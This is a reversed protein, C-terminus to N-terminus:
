NAKDTHIAAAEESQQKKEEKVEPQEAGEKVAQDISNKKDNAPFWLRYIKALIKTKLMDFVFNSAGLAALSLFFSPASRFSVHDSWLTSMVILSAIQLIVAALFTWYNRTQFLIYLGFALLALIPVKLGYIDVSEKLNLWLDPWIRKTLQNTLLMVLSLLIAFLIIWPALVIALGNGLISNFTTKSLVMFGCLYQSSVLGVLLMRSFEVLTVLVIGAITNNTASKLERYNYKPREKNMERYLFPELIRLLDDWLINLLQKGSNNSDKPILGSFPHITKCEFISGSSLVKEQAKWARFEETREEGLKIGLSTALQTRYIDFAACSLKGYTIGSSIFWKECSNSLIGLALIEGTVTLITYTSPHWGQWNTSLSYWNWGFKSLGTSIQLLVLGLLMLLLNRLLNAGLIMNILPVVITLRRLAANIAPKTLELCFSFLLILVILFYCYQYESNCFATFFLMGCWIPCATDQWKQFTLSLLRSMIYSARINTISGKVDTPLLLFLRPWFVVNNIGYRSEAYGEFYLQHTTLEDFRGADREDFAIDSWSAELGQRSMVSVFTAFIHVGIAVGILLNLDANNTGLFLKLTEIGLTSIVLLLLIGTSTASVLLSRVWPRDIFSLYSSNM